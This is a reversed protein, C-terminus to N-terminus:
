FVLVSVIDVCGYLDIVMVIYIGLFLGSNEVIMVSNLWLYIYFMIGGIVLVM